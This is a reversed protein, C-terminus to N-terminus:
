WNKQDELDTNHYNTLLTEYLLIVGKKIDDEADKDDDKFKLFTIDKYDTIKEINQLEFWRIQM